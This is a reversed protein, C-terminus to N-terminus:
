MTGSGMTAQDDHLYRLTLEHTIHDFAEDVSDTRFVLDLDQRSITGYKTLATLDIM